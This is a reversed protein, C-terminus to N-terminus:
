LRNGVLDNVTAMLASAADLKMLEMVVFTFIGL